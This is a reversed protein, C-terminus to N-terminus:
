KQPWACMSPSSPSVEQIFSGSISQEGQQAGRRLKPSPHIQHDGGLKCPWNPVSWLFSEPDSPSTLVPAIPFHPEIPLGASSPSDICCFSRPQLHRLPQLFPATTPDPLTEGQTTHERESACVCVSERRRERREVVLTACAPSRPLARYREEQIPPPPRTPTHSPSISRIGLFALGAPHLCSPLHCTTPFFRLFLAPSSHFIAVPLTM